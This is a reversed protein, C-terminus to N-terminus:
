AYAPFSLAATIDGLMDVAQGLQTEALEAERLLLLANEIVASDRKNARISGLLM